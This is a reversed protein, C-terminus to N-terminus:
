KIRRLKGFGTTVVNPSTITYRAAVGKMPGNESTVIVMNGNIEYSVKEIIGMTESEGKRFNVTMPIPGEMKWTGALPGPDNNSCAALTVMLFLIAIIKSIGTM